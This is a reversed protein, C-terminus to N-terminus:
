VWLMITVFFIAAFFPILVVWRIVRSEWRLHMYYLVVLTAKAMMLVVLAAVQASKEEILRGIDLEVITLVFLAAFVVTYIKWRDRAEAEHPDVLDAGDAGAKGTETVTESMRM